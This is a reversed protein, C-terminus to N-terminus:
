TISAVYTCRNFELNIADLLQQNSYNLRHSLEFRAQVGSTIRNIFLNFRESCFHFLHARKRTFAPSISLLDAEPKQPVKKERTENLEVPSVAEPLSVGCAGVKISPSFLDHSNIRCDAFRIRFQHPSAPGPITHGPFLDYV